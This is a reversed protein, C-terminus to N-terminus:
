SGRHWLLTVGSSNVRSGVVKFFLVLIHMDEHIMIDMLSVRINGSDDMSQLIATPGTFLEQNLYIINDTGWRRVAGYDTKKFPNTSVKLSTDIFYKRSALSESVRQLTGIGEYSRMGNIVNSVMQQETPTLVRIELGDPDVFNVPNNGCFVYQNLGGSIGIPDNSHWKGTM